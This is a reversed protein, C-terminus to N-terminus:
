GLSLPREFNCTVALGPSTTIRLRFSVTQSFISRSTGHDQSPTCTVEKGSLSSWRFFMPGFDGSQRSGAGRTSMSEQEISPNIRGYPSKIDCPVRAMGISSASDCRKRESSRSVLVLGIYDCLHHVFSSSLEASKQAIELTASGGNRGHGDLFQTVLNFIANSETWQTFPELANLLYQYM